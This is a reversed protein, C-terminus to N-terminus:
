TIQRISEFYDFISSLVNLEAQKLMGGHSGTVEGVAFPCLANETKYGGRLLNM